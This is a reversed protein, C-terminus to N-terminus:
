TEQYKFTFLSSLACSGLIDIVQIGAAASVHQWFYYKYQTGREVLRIYTVGFEVLSYGNDILNHDHDMVMVEHESLEPWAIRLDIKPVAQPLEIRIGHNSSVLYRSSPAGRGVGTQLEEDSLDSFRIGSQTHLFSNGLTQWRPYERFDVTADQQTPRLADVWEQISNAVADQALDPRDPDSPLMLGPLVMGPGATDESDGERRGLADADVARAKALDMTDVVISVLADTTWVSRERDSPVALLLSQPAQSNPGDYQVAVSTDVKASPLNETQEYLVLGSLPADFDIGNIANTAAVLSLTNRAEALNQHLSDGREEDDLALWRGAYSTPLQAVHLSMDSTASSNEPQHWAEVMELTQDLMALPENVLALQQLWLRVRHEGADGLLDSRNFATSLEAFLDEHSNSDFTPLVLLSSGCIARAADVLLMIQRETSPPADPGLAQRRLEQCRRVRDLLDVLTEMWRQLVEPDNPARLLASPVGYLAAMWLTQIINSTEGIRRQISGAVQQYWTMLTEPATATFARARLEEYRREHFLTTVSEEVPQTADSRPAEPVRPSEFPNEADLIMQEYIVLDHSVPQAGLKRLLECVGRLSHRVKDDLNSIDGQTFTTRARDEDAQDVQFESAAESALTLLEPRLPHGAALTDFAQRGLELADELGYGYQTPRAPDVNVRLEHALAYEGRVFYHVRREIETEEGQVPSSSLYLLDIAELGLEAMSLTNVGTTAYPRIAEITTLDVGATELDSLRRYGGQPMTRGNEILNATAADIGLLELESVEATNVNIRDYHSEADTKERGTMIWRQMKDITVKEVGADALADVDHFRGHTERHEVIEKANDAFGPIAALESLTADNINIRPTLFSYACNVQSLEGIIDEAWAAIRPEVLTRPGADRGPRADRLLIFVRQSFSKSSSRTKISELEPPHSQGNIADIAASARQYNGQVAHYLGENMLTDSMADLGDRLRDLESQLGELDAVATNGNGMVLSELKQQKEPGWWRALALGDVVNRSAMAEVSESSDANETEEIQGEPPAENTKNAVLPFAKRFNDIYQDLGAQSSGPEHLGREFQYGLLAGLPQGQRLGELLRQARRVRESNLNIHFPNPQPGNAHSLYANHLVAGAAAQASSPAHIYGASGQVSRMWDVLIGTAVTRKSSFVFRVLVIGVNGLPAGSGTRRDPSSLNFTLTNWAGNNLEQAPFSFVSINARNADGLHIEVSVLGMTPRRPRGPLIVIRSLPLDDPLYVDISITTTNLLDHTRGSGIVDGFRTNDAQKNLGISSKGYRFNKPQNFLQNGDLLENTEYLSIREFDEFIESQDPRLNEVYGYAGLHIGWPKDRRMAHLRKTALSTVWADLRNGCLDLTERFLREVSKVAEHDRFANLVSVQSNVDGGLVAQVQQFSEFRGSPLAERMMLIRKGLARDLGHTEHDSFRAVFQDTNTIANLFNVASAGALRCIAERVMTKDIPAFGAQRLTWPTGQPFSLSPSSPPALALSRQLMDKLLTHVEEPERKEGLSRCLADLYFEPLEDESPPPPGECRVLDMNFDALARANWWGTMSMLNSTKFADKFANANQDGPQLGVWEQWHETQEARTRHWTENWQQVWSLPSGDFEAYPTGEGFVHKRMAVLLWAVFGEDVFPRIRYSISLPEMALIQILEKDPDDTSGIKPVRNVDNALALWRKLLGSLVKHLGEDFAIGDRVYADDTLDDLYKQLEPILEFPLHEPDLSTLPLHSGQNDDETGKWDKMCLAPLVGYPQSGVRVCPLPGSGRVFDAFHHGLRGLTKDSLVQSLLNRLLYDGTCPWLATQMEQTYSDDDAGSHAIFKLPSPTTGLGLAHGLRQANTRPIDASGQWPKPGIIEIDYSAERDEDSASHGSKDKSNNTPTGWPVFGLGTSYHHSELLLELAHQGGVASDSRIGTVVVRSFGERLDEPELGTVRIGMGDSEAQRFDEVWRSDEDFLDSSSSTPKGLLTLPRTIPKGFVVSSNEGRYLYVAFQDPLAMLKPITLWGESEPKIEDPSKGGTLTKHIWAARKPGFKRALERWASKSDSSASLYEMGADVEKQRLRREHTDVFIQDPYIHVLLETGRFRTEIRVPLLLVPCDNWPIPQPDSGDEWDRGRYRELLGELNRPDVAALHSVQDLTEFRKSPIQERVAIVRRWAHTDIPGDAFTTVLRKASEASNVYQLLRKKLRDDFGGGVSNNTSNRQPRYSNKRM